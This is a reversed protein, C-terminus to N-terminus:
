RGTSHRLHVHRPCGCRLREGRRHLGDDSFEATSPSRLHDKAWERCQNRVEVESPGADEGDSGLASCAFLTGSVLVTMGLFLGLCGKLFSGAGDDKKEAAADDSM